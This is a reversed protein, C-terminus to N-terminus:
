ITRGIPHRGRDPTRAAGKRQYHRGIAQAGGCLAADCEPGPPPDHESLDVAVSPAREQRRGIDATGEGQQAAWRAPGGWLAREQGDHGVASRRSTSWGRSLCRLM